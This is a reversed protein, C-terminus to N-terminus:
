KKRKYEALFLKTDPKTEFATPRDGGGLNYCITLTDADQKYIAKVTKGKNPGGTPKIDMEKPSKGPDVTFSGNDTEEGVKVTYKGDERIEFDLMKLLEFIDTKGLEAKVITWKGVMAKLDAKQATDDGTATSVLFM